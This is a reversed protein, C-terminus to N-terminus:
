KQGRKEGGGKKREKRRVENGEDREVCLGDSVKEEKFAGREVDEKTQLYPHM